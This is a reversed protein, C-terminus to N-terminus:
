RTFGTASASSTRCTQTRVPAVSHASQLFLENGFRAFEDSLGRVIKDRQLAVARRRLPDIAHKTRKMGELTGGAHDFSGAM